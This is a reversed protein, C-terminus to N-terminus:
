RLITTEHEDLVYDRTVARWLARGSAKLGAPPRPAKDMM